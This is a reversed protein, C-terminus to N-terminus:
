ESVPVDFAILVCSKNSINKYAHVTNVDEIVSDGAKLLVSNEGRYEMIEGRQVYVIGPRTKHGHEPIVGGPPVVIKRARLDYGKMGPIQQEPSFRELQSVELAAPQSQLVFPWLLLLLLFKKNM